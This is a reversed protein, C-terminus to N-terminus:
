TRGDITAEECTLEIKDADQYTRIVRYRQRTKGDRAWLLIKEGAYNVAPMDFVIDPHLGNAMARYFEQQGVSRVTCLVMRATEDPADFIGHAAPNEAVLYCIDARIM